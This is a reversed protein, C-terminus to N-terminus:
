FSIDSNRDSTGNEVFLECNLSVDDLIEQSFSVPSILGIKRSLSRLDATSLSKLWRGLVDSM